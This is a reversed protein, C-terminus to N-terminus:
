REIHGECIVKGEYPSYINIYYGAFAAILGQVFRRRTEISEVKDPGGCEGAADIVREAPAWGWIFFHRWGSPRKPQTDVDSPFPQSTLPLNVYRTRYCATDAVLFFCVVLLLGATRNM